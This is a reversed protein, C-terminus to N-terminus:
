KEEKFEMLSLFERFDIGGDDFHARTPLYGGDYVKFKM